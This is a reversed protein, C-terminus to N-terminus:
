CRPSCRSCNCSISMPKMRDEPSLSDFYCKQEPVKFPKLPPDSAWLDVSVTTEKNVLKEILFDVKSELRAIQISLETFAEQRTLKKTM